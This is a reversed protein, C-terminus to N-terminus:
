VNPGVPCIANCAPGALHGRSPAEFGRLQGYIVSNEVPHSGAETCTLWSRGSTLRGSCAWFAQVTYSKRHGRVLEPLPPYAQARDLDRSSCGTVPELELCVM